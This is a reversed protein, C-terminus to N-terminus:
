QNRFSEETKLGQASQVGDDTGASPASVHPGVSYPVSM